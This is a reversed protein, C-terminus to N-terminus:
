KEEGGMTHGFVHCNPRMQSEHLFVSLVQAAKCQYNGNGVQLHHLVPDCPFRM